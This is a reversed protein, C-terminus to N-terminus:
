LWRQDGNAVQPSSDFQEDNRIFTLPQLNDRDRSTVPAHTDCTTIQKVDNLWSCVAFKILSFTSNGNDYCDQSVSYTLYGPSRM